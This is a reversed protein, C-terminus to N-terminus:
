STYRDHKELERFLSALFTEAIIERSSQYALRELFTDCLRCALQERARHKMDRYRRFFSRLVQRDEATCQRLQEATFPYDDSAFREVEGVPEEPLSSGRERLVVTDAALDGLRQGRKTYLVLFAGLFYYAPLFDALGLLNRIVAARFDLPGGRERVVRIGAFKKGPTQGNHRVEYYIDFGLFFAYFLAVLVAAVLYRSSEALPNTELLLVLLLGVFLTGLVIFGKILWDIVQAVFRSGLGAVELEIDIQEPTEIRLEDTWRM